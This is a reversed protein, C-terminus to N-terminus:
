GGFIWGKQPGWGWGWSDEDKKFLGRQGEPKNTWGLGEQGTTQDWFETWYWRPAGTFRDWTQTGAKAWYEAGGGTYKGIARVDGLITAISYLAIGGIMVIGGIVLVDSVEKSEETVGTRKSKTKPM